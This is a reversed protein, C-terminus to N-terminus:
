YQKHRSIFTTSTRAQLALHLELGLLHDGVGDTSEVSGPLIEVLEDSGYGGVGRPMKM